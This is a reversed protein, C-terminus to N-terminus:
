TTTLQGDLKSHRRLPRRVDHARAQGRHGEIADRYLALKENMASRTPSGPSRSSGADSSFLVIRAKAPKLRM